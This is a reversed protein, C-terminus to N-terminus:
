VTSTSTSTKADDYGSQMADLEDFYKPMGAGENKTQLECQAAVWPWMATACWIDEFMNGWINYKMRLNARTYGLIAVMFCWATWGLSASDKVGIQVFHMILWFLFLCQAITGLVFATIKHNEVTRLSVFVAYGPLVLGKIWAM